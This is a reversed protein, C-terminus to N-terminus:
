QQPLPIRIGSDLLYNATTNTGAVVDVKLPGSIVRMYTNLKVAYTATDLVIAYEGNPGTVTRGVRGNGDSYDIELKPVPRGACVDGPQEVPRCPVATVRGSVTGTAPSPSPNAGPFSYAGCAATLLLVIVGALWQHRM